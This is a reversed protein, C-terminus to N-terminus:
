RPGAPIFPARLVQLRKCPTKSLDFTALAEDIEEPYLRWKAGSVPPQLGAAVLARWIKHSSCGVREAAAELTETKCWEAVAHMADELDVIHQRRRHGFRPVSRTPLIEVGAWELVRQLAGTDSLGCRVIATTLHVFGAPTSPLHLKRSRFYVSTQTRELQTAISLLSRPEDWLFRLENDEKASWPRPLNEPPKAQRKLQNTRQKVAIPSRGLAHGVAAYSKGQTLMLIAEQDEAATWARYKALVGGLPKAETM